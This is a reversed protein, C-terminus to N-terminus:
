PATTVELESRYTTAREAHSYPCIAAHRGRACRPPLEGKRAPEQGARHLKVSRHASPGLVDRPGISPLRAPSPASKSLTRKINEERRFFHERPAGGVGGRLRRPRVPARADATGAKGGAGCMENPSRSSQCNIIGATARSLQLLGNRVAGHRDGNATTPHKTQHIFLPRITDM